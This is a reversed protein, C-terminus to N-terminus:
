RAGKFPPKQKTPALAAARGAITAQSNQTLLRTFELREEPSLSEWVKRAARIQCDGDPHGGAEDAALILAVAQERSLLGEAPRCGYPCALGQASGWLRCIMPRIDYVSCRREDDLMSCSAGAGCTVDGRGRQQIRQRERLSMDIPGCSDSCHGACQVDPVQAYLAELSEDQRRPNPM